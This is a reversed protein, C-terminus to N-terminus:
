GIGLSEIRHGGRGRGLRAAHRNSAPRVLGTARGPGNRQLCLVHDLVPALAAREVRRDPAADGVVFHGSPNEVSRQFALVLRSPSSVIVPEPSPRPEFMIAWVAAGSTPSADLAALTKM